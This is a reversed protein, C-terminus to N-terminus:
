PGRGWLRETAIAAGEALAALKAWVVTPAVMESGAFTGFGCDTSAIVRTRDGVAEVARCIRDAVVEPHEVYNTTTDIVGPLLVMSDPLPHRRLVRYEHQHRPNAFEISLAGVRAQYLAPLIADLPVDHTHPGDYNGWCVHLRIRDPPIAAVAQNLADVHLEVMRVFRDLPLDQFFRSREMALDPCDLQLVFGRAHILEYEKRMERALAMVYREHSGYHGDLLTTAIIGPSAATMFSEAFARPEAKTVRLFLECEATAEGLDAYEVEALAQPTRAIRAANVRRAALIAGYDPFDLVDRATPRNREGGFGRMRGAVYTSFGVRPQEGDNGVDIGAQLQRRVVLRVAAETESALRAADVPEGREQGVLLDRLAPPRPLSGVHTVLTRDDSQLM